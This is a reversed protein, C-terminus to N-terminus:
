LILVAGFGVLAVASAIIIRQLAAGPRGHSIKDWAAAISIGAVLGGLHAEWAINPVILPLSLNIALLLMLQSFVARGAPTHRQRYTAAVLAGMLGFIAGSAGVAPVLRGVAHYLSAGGLGAAVYLSIFSASGFRRELSPGFLYLAWMNFAIHTLSAHLFMATFARWVEGSDILPKFQAAETFIRSGTAPDLRGILYIAVNIAILAWTVPTTARDVRRITRADIVRNRGVPAACEPCKQGVAADHTCEVCIPRGCESCSIRTARDPHRYCYATSTTSPGQDTM